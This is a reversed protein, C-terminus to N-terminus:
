DRVGQAPNMGTKLESAEPRILQIRGEPNLVFRQLVEGKTFEIRYRYLRGGEENSRGVLTLGILDGLRELDSRIREQEPAIVGWFETTYQDPNLKGAHADVVASRIRRTVEPERDEIPPFGDLYFRKMEPRLPLPVPSPTSGLNQIEYYQGGRALETALEFRVGVRRTRSPLLTLEGSQLDFLNAYQTPTAGEQTCARLLALGTDVEPRPSTALGTALTKGGYGIGRSRHARDFVLEGKRVGIVVSAGTRDAVLLHARAFGPERHRRFFDIAEEVTTCSELMRQAPNGRVPKLKPDPEWTEMSDAVWDFAVGATNVGGQAWGDDFGVYACGLFGKGEPVFWLRTSPNSFDENNCFLTHQGDTLVFITCARGPLVAGM